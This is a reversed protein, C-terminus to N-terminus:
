ASYIIVSLCSLGHWSISNQLVLVTKVCAIGVEMCINLFTSALGRPLGNRNAGSFYSTGM